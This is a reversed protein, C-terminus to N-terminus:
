ISCRETKNCDSLYWYLLLSTICSRSCCASFTMENQIETIIQLVSSIFQLNLKNYLLLLLKNIM